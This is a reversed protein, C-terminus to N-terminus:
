DAVVVWDIALVVDAAAVSDVRKDVNEVRRPSFVFDPVDDATLVDSLAVFVETRTVAVAEAFVVVDTLELVADLNEVEIMRDDSDAVTPIALV